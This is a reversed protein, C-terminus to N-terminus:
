LLGSNLPALLVECHILECSLPLGSLLTVAYSKLLGSSWTRPLRGIILGSRYTASEPRPISVIETRRRNVGRFCEAYSAGSTEQNELTITYVLTALTRNIDADIDEHDARRLRRL